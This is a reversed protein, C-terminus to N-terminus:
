RAPCPSWGRSVALTTVASSALDPFYGVIEGDPSVVEVDYADRDDIGLESVHTVEVVDGRPTRYRAEIM